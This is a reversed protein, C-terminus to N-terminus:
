TKRKYFSISSLILNGFTLAFAIFLMAAGGSGNGCIRSDSCSLATLYSAGASGATLFLCVFVQDGIYFILHSADGLILTKNFFGISAVVSGFGSYLIGLAAIAIEYKPSATSVSLAYYYTLIDNLDDVKSIFGPLVAVAVVVCMLTLVRLVVEALLWGQSLRDVWCGVSGGVDADEGGNLEDEPARGLPPTNTLAEPPVAKQSMASYEGRGSRPSPSARVPPMYFAGSVPRDSEVDMSGLRLPPEGFDSAMYSAPSAIRMPPSDFDSARYSAPSAIRMPPSASSPAPPASPADLKVSNLDQAHYGRSAEDM